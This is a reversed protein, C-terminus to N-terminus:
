RLDSSDPCLNACAGKSDTSREEAAGTAISGGFGADHSEQEHSAAPRAHKRHTSRCVNASDLCTISVLFHLQIQLSAQTVPACPQQWCVITAVGAELVSFIYLAFRSVHTRPTDRYVAAPQLKHLIGTHQEFLLLNISARYCIRLVYSVCVSLMNQCAPPKSQSPCVPFGPMHSSFIAAGGKISFWIIRLM